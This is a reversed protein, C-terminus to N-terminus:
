ARQYLPNHSLQVSLMPANPSRFVESVATIRWRIQLSKQLKDQHRMHVIHGNLCKYGNLYMLLARPPACHVGGKTSVDM